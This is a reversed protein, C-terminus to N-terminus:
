DLKYTNAKCVEELFYELEVLSKCSGKMLEFSLGALLELTLTDVKLRNMVFASFDLSTDMLKNLSDRTDDKQALDSSTKEKLASTSETKKLEEERPGQPQILPIHPYPLTTTSSPPIEVNTTVPVDTLSTSETNLNLIFNISTNPNPNLMNSIFGSSVSSSHQQAELTVTTLIVHADETVQTGQLNTQSIGTMETDRGELNINVDKYLQNVEEEGDMKAEEDNGGQTVEDYDQSDGEDDNDDDSQRDGDDNHRDDDDSQDDVDDDDEDDRSKKDKAMFYNVIVKTFRPYYMDNNKKSNKNEVQFVLDSTSRRTDQCNAYDADAVAILAILSDKLYWIGRNVTGRLYWFIRKVAHLYKETPQAQYRTCMCIVFQLDPRSATLYLLTGIMGRYHSLYIAKREKDEDLKSKKVMPTDM